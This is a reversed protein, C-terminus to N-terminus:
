VFSRTQRWALQMQFKHSLKENFAFGIRTKNANTEIAKWNQKWKNIERTNNGVVCANDTTVNMEQEGRLVRERECVFNVRASKGM